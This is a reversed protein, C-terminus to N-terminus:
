HTLCHHRERRLAGTGPVNTRIPIKATPITCNLQANSDNVGQHVRSSLGVPLFLRFISQFSLSILVLKALSAGGHGSM